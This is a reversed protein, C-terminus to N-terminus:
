ALLEKYLSYLYTHSYLVALMGLVFYAEPVLFSAVLILPVIVVGIIVFLELPLFLLKRIIQWRRFRVLNKASRLASRPQMDPLTVIYLAFISSSVMRFSWVCALAFLLSFFIIVAANAAITSIVLMLIASGIAIPLTQIIVWFLVLLFPILPAMSHYYAQKVGIREGAFLHRLAWIIVLSELILLISQLSSTQSGNSLTLSSFGGLADSFQHTDKINHISANINGLISSAFILNLITYVSVIGLLPRWCKKIFVFSGAALKFSGPISAQTRAVKKAKQRAQKKTPKRVRAGAIIKPAIKAKASAKRKKEGKKPM